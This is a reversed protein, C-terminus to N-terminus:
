EMDMECDRNQTITLGRAMIKADLGFMKTMDAITILGDQITAIQSDPKTVMATLITSGSKVADEKMPLYKVYEM